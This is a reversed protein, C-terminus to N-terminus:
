STYQTLMEQAKEVDGKKYAKLAREELGPVQNLEQEEFKSWHERVHPNLAEYDTDV